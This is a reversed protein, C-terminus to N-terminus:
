PPHEPPAPPAASPRGLGDWRDLTGADTGVLLAGTPLWHLSLVASTVPLTACAEGTPLRWVQVGWPGGAALLHGDATLALAEVPGPTAWVHQPAARHDDWLLVQADMGGTALWGGGLVCARLSSHHGHLVQLARGSATDWRTVSGDDNGTILEHGDPALAMGWVQLGVALTRRLHGAADWLRATGDIGGTAITQGDSSIAVSLVRGAHGILHAREDLHDDWVVATGDSSGSVLVPAEAAWALDRVGDQHVMRAVLPTGGTAPYLRVVRDYSGIALRTGDPAVALARVPAQTLLRTSRPGVPDSPAPTALTPPSETPSPPRTAPSWVLVAVGLTAVVGAVAVSTVGGGIGSGSGLTRTRAVAQAAAQVHGHAGAAVGASTMTAAFAAPALPAAPLMLAATIANAGVAVGQRRLVERLRALARTVHTHVTDRSCGLQQAVEDQSLGQVFRLLVASRQREPLAALAADVLPLAEAVGEALGPAAPTDATDRAARAEHHARRRQARALQLACRHATVHLWAALPQATGRAALVPAKRVLVLFTAQAADQALDRDELVRLCVAQVLAAYRQVLADWAAEDRARVYRTLLEHDDM